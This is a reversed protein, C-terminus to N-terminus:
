YVTQSDAEFIILLRYPMQGEWKESNIQLTLVLWIFHLGACMMYMKKDLQTSHSAGHKRCIIVDVIALFNHIIRSNEQTLRSRLAIVPTQLRCAYLLSGMEWGGMLLWLGHCSFESGALQFSWWWKAEGCCATQTPRLWPYVRRGAPQTPDISVMQTRTPSIDTHLLLLREWVSFYTCYQQFSFYM